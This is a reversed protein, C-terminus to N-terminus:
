QQLLTKFYPDNKKVEDDPIFGWDAAKKSAMYERKDKYIRKINRMAPHRYLIHAFEHAIIFRYTEDGHFRFDPNLIIIFRHRAKDKFYTKSTLAGVPSGNDEIDKCIIFEIDNLITLLENSNVSNIQYYAEKILREVREKWVDSPGKCFYISNTIFEEIIAM